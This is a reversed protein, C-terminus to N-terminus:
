MELNTFLKFSLTQLLRVQATGVVNTTILAETFVGFADVDIKEGIASGLLQGVDSGMNRATSEALLDSVDVRSGIESAAITITSLAVATDSLDDTQGPASASISPYVPIQATLGPISTMDYVTFLSGAISKEQQTFMAEQLINTLLATDATQLEPSAM